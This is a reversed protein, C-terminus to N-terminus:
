PGVMFPQPASWEGYGVNNWGQVWWKLNTALPLATLTDADPVSCEGVGAECGVEAATYWKQVFINKDLDQVWVYYWSANGNMSPTWTYTPTSDTVIGSPAKLDSVQGPLRPADSISTIGEASSTEGKVNKATVTWKAIGLPLVPEAPLTIACSTDDAACGAESPTKTIVHVNGESDTIKLTYSTARDPNERVWNFTPAPKPNALGAAPAGLVPKTPAAPLFRFNAVERARENLLRANDSVGAEGIPKGQRPVETNSWYSLRQGGTNGPCNYAMITRLGDACYGHAYDEGGGMMNSNGPNLDAGFIFGLQHALGYYGTGCGERVLALANYENNNEAVGEVNFGASYGCSDYGNNGTMVVMIDAYNNDRLRRLEKEAHSLGTQFNDADRRFNTTETYATKYNRVIKIRTNVGSLQFSMNTEQEMQDLYAAVTTGPDLDAEFQATYAVILDIRSGDDTGDAPVDASGGELSEGGASGSSMAPLTSESLEPMEVVLTDGNSAPTFKYLKGNHNFSGLMVGNNVAVNLVDMSASTASYAIGGSDSTNVSIVDLQTSENLFDLNLVLTSQEDINATIDSNYKVSGVVTGEQTDTAAGGSGAGFIDFTGGAFLPNAGM